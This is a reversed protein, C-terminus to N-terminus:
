PKLQVCLLEQNSRIYLRGQVLTPATYCIGGRLLNARATPSFDDSTAPALLLQGEENILVIQGDAIIINGKVTKRTNWKETGTAFEVCKFIGARDDFGYLHGEYLVPTATHPSLISNKYVEQTSTGAVRILRCGSGYAAGVFIQDGPGVVPTMINVGEQPHRWIERGDEPSLGVLNRGTLVVLQRTGNIARLMPSSHNMPEDLAKWLLEGTLKDLAYVSRGALIILQQGDVLPSPSLGEEHLRLGFKELVNFQWVPKGTATELCQLQGSAGLAYVRNGDVGPTSRPGPSRGDAFDKDSDVKWLPEGTMAHFCAVYERGQRGFLTFVRGDSVTLGSYGTGLEARWLIKPGDEPFTTILGTERSIGNGEPGLWTAWEVKGGDPNAGAFSIQSPAHNELALAEAGKPNAGEAIGKTSEKPAAVPPVQTGSPPTENAAGFSPLQSEPSEYPKASNPSADDQRQASGVPEVESPTSNTCGASGITLVICGVVLAVPYSFPPM